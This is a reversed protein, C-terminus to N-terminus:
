KKKIQPASPPPALPEGKCENVPVAIALKETPKVCDNEACNGEQCLNHSVRTVQGDQGFIVQDIDWCFRTVHQDTTQTDRYSAWGWVYFHKLGDRRNFQSLCTKSITSFTVSAVAKPSLVMPSTALGPMDGNSFGKPLDADVELRSLYATMGVTESVGSNEWQPIIDYTDDNRKEFRVDRLSVYARIQKEAAHRADVVLDRTECVLAATAFFLLLTVITLPDNFWRKPPDAQPAIGTQEPDRGKEETENGM